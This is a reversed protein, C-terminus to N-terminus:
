FKQIIILILSTRVHLLNPIVNHLRIELTLNKVHVFQPIILSMVSQELVALVPVHIEVNRM